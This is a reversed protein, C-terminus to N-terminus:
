SDFIAKIIKYVYSSLETKYTNLLTNTKTDIVKVKFEDNLYFKQKCKSKYNKIKCKNKYDLDKSINIKIFLCDPCKIEIM